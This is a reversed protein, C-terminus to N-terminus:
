GKTPFDSFYCNTRRSSFDCLRLPQFMRTCDPTPQIRPRLVWPYPPGVTSCRKVSKLAKLMQDIHPGPVVGGLYPPVVTDKFGKQGQKM